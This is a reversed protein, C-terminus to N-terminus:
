SMSDELLVRELKHLKATGVMHPILALTEVKSTNPLFLRFLMSEKEKV